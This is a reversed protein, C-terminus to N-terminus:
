CSRLKYHLWWGHINVSLWNVQNKNTRLHLEWNLLHQYQKALFFHYGAQEPFVGCRGKELSKMQQQEHCVSSQEMRRHKLRREVRDNRIQKRRWKLRYLFWTLPAAEIITKISPISKLLSLCIVFTSLDLYYKDSYFFSKELQFNNLM